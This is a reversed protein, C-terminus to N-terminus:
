ETLSQNAMMPFRGFLAFGSPPLLSTPPEPVCGGLILLHVILSVVGSCFRERSQNAGLEFPRRNQYRYSIYWGPFITRTTLLKRNSSIQGSVGKWSLFPHHLILSVYISRGLVAQITCTQM